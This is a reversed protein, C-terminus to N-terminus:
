VRNVELKEIQTFSCSTRRGDITFYGVESPTIYRIMPTRIAHNVEGTKRDIFAIEFIMASADGSLLGLSAM